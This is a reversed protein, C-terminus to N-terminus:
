FVQGLAALGIGEIDQPTALANSGERQAKFAAHHRVQVAARVHGRFHIPIRALEQVGVTREDQARDV